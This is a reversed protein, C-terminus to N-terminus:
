ATFPSSGPSAAPTPRVVAGRGPCRNLSGTSVVGASGPDAAMRWSGTTSARFWLAAGIAALGSLLMVPWAYAVLGPEVIRVLPGAADAGLVTAALLQLANHTFHFVVGPLLSGSRIALYGLVMGVLAALVSQQLILHTAGFFLSSFLVGTGPGLRRLGALIFGRYALEECIAPTLALLVLVHVLSPAQGLLERLSELQAATSESIPYLSHVAGAALASWPHLCVALLVASTMAATGPWRLRLARRPRRTCVWALLCAPLAVLVVQVTLLSNAFGRWTTPLPLLFSALFRGMLLVCACLLAQMVTPAAGRHRLRYQCWARLDFRESERFLVSEDEFQHIAWRIALACCLTTVAVVPLAYQLATLYRAEMLSRLLLLIGTVPILSNGLDLTAGPLQPLILLPMAALLLPMLYYQGERTSRAMAALALSLAAFLAAVPIMALPLWCLAALPPPGLALGPGALVKLRSVTFWGTVGMSVLNWSATALSFLMVTTLKGWVIERRSAPGSLLTELTGREKEGACLDVAPYFAGTLAWIFIAFPLVKSWLVAKRRAPRSVDRPVVLFPETVTAPLQRNRFARQVLVTRWRHLVGVLENRALRSPDRARDFYVEPRLRPRDGATAGLQQGFRPPFLVAADCKGQRVAQSAAQSADLGAPLQRATVELSSKARQDNLVDAVFGDPELLPPTEPLNEAGLVWIRLPHERSFQAVHVLSVGIVPYLLLPLVAIVFLTRRDRLQDRLERVAILRVNSWNM